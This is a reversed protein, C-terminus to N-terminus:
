EKGNLFFNLVPLLSRAPVKKFENARWELNEIDTKNFKEMNFKIQGTENDKVEVAPRVLIALAYAAYEYLDNNFREQYTKLSIYEGTSIDNLQSINRALYKTDGIVLIDTSLENSEEKLILEVVKTGVKDLDELSFDDASEGIFLEVIDLYTIMGDVSSFYEEVGDKPLNDIIRALQLYKGLPLDMKSEPLSVRGENIEIIM